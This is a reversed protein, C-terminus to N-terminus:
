SKAYMWPIIFYESFHFITFYGHMFRFIYKGCQFIKAFCPLIIKNPLYFPLMSAKSFRGTLHTTRQLKTALFGSKKSWWWPSSPMLHLLCLTVFVYIWFSSRENSTSCTRILISWNTVVWRYHKLISCPTSHTQTFQDSSTKQQTNIQDLWILSKNEYTEYNGLLWVLDIQNSLTLILTVALLM